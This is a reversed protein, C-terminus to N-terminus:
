FSCPFFVRFATDVAIKARPELPSFLDRVQSSFISTKFIMMSPLAGSCLLHHPSCRRIWRKFGDGKCFLEFLEFGVKKVSSGSRVKFLLHRVGSQDFIEGVDSGGDGVRRGQKYRGWNLAPMTIEVFTTLSIAFCGFMTAHLIGGVGAIHSLKRIAAGSSKAQM